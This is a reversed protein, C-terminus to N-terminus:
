HGTPRSDLGAVRDIAVIPGMEEKDNRCENALVGLNPQPGASRAFSNVLNEAAWWSLPSAGFLLLLLQAM